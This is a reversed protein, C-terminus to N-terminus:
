AAPRREYPTVPSPLGFRYVQQAVFLPDEDPYLDLLRRIAEAFTIGRWYYGVLVRECELMREVNM